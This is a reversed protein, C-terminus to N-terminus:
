RPRRSSRRIAAANHAASPPADGATFTPAPVPEYSGRSRGTAATSGDATISACRDGPDASATRATASASGRRGCEQEVSRRPTMGWHSRAPM